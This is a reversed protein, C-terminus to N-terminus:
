CTCCSNSTNCTCCSNGSCCSGKNKQTLLYWVVACVAIFLAGILVKSILNMNGGYNSFRALVEYAAKQAEPTDPTSCFCMPCNSVAGGQAPYKEFVAVNTVGNQVLKYAAGMGSVGSGMVVADFELTKGM